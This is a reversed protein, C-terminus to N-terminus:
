NGLESISLILFDLCFASTIVHLDSLLFIIYDIMFFAASAESQHPIIEEAADTRADTCRATKKVFSVTELSM